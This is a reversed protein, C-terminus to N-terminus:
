RSAFLKPRTSWNNPQTFTGFSTGQTVRSLSGTPNSCTIGEGPSSVTMLPGGQSFSSQAGAFNVSGVNVLPFADSSWVKPYRDINQKSRTVRDNGASTIIPVNLDNMINTMFNKARIWHPPGNGTTQPRGAWSFSVVAKGEIKRNVIDQRILDFLIPTDSVSKSTKAAIMTAAKAVGFRQGGAKSACCTAHGDTSDDQAGQKAGPAYIINPDM